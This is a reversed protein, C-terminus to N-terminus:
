TKMKSLHLEFQSRAVDIKTRVASAIEAVLNRGEKRCVEAKAMLKALDSAYLTAIDGEIQDLRKELRKIQLLVRLLDAAVGVGQVSEPSNEYEQLINRLTEADGQRYARSADAMLRDRNARDAEGTAMDPHIRKAVERYLSKLEPSPAFEKASAAEGHAVSYSENAQARAENAASRAADTDAERALLEALKAKWEDLEAYLVGVERLYRGEFVSLEGRLNALFLERDVLVTQLQALEEQKRALEEEERTRYRVIEAPM